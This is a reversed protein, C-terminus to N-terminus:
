PGSSHRASRPGDRRSATEILSHGHEIGFGFQCATQEAFIGLDIRRHRVGPQSPDGRTVTIQAATNDRLLRGVEITKRETM